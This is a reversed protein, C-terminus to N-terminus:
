PLICKVSLPIKEAFCPFHQLFNHVHYKKAIRKDIANSAITFETLDPLSPFANSRNCYAAFYNQWVGGGGWLQM